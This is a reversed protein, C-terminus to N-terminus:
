AAHAHEIQRAVQRSREGTKEEGVEAGLHQLNFRRLAVAHELKAGM